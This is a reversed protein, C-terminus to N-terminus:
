RTFFPLSVGLSALFNKLCIIEARSKQWLWEMHDTLPGGEKTDKHEESLQPEESGEATNFM